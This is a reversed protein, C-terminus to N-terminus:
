PYLEFESIAMQGGPQNPGNPALAKVMVYRANIKPLRHSYTGGRSIQNTLAATWTKGDGSTLIQYRTPYNDPPFTVIAKKFTTSQQLDVLLSWAWEQSAQASQQINRVGDVAYSGYRLYREGNVPLEKDIAGNSVMFVPKYRTLSEHRPARSGGRVVQKVAAMQAVHKPEIRGNNNIAVDITVVGGLSNVHQIYNTIQANSYKTGPDSWKSGLFSMTHWQINKSRNRISAQRPYRHFDAEEGAIYDEETSNPRFLSSSVNCTSISQPNGARTAALLKDVNAEGDTSNGFGNVGPYCGDIWWGVVDKGWRQSWERIMANMSARNLANAQDDTAPFNHRINAPAATPGEASIYVLTAIQYKRLERSVAKVLDRSSVYQGLKTGTRKLFFQSPASYYGSTQGVSFIVYKAGTSRVDKAFAVVDFGNVLRDWSGDPQMTALPITPIGPHFAVNLGYKANKFWNTRSPEKAIATPLLVAGGIGWSLSVAIAVFRIWRNNIISM